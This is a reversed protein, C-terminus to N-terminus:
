IDYRDRLYEIDSETLDPLGEKRSRVRVEESNVVRSAFARELEPDLKVMIKLYPRSVRDGDGTWRSRYVVRPTLRGIGRENLSNGNMLLNFKFDNFYKLVLDITEYSMSIGDIDALEDQIYRVPDDFDSNGQMM